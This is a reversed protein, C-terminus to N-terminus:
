VWSSPLPVGHSWVTNRDVAMETQVCSSQPVMSSPQSPAGPSWSSRKSTAGGAASVSAERHVAGVHRISTCAMGM